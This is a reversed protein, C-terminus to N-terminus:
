LEIHIYFHNKDQVETKLYAEFEASTFEGRSDTRIAKLKREASNEVMARWERFKEFVQDKRQWIYVWM